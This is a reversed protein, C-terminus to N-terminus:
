DREKKIEDFEDLPKLSALSDLEELKKYEQYSQVEALSDKVKVSDSIEKLQLELKSKVNKLIEEHLSINASYYKLSAHFSASDTQHNEYIYSLYNITRDGNINKSNRAAKAIYSDALITAMKDKAILNEPKKIITNSNCATILVALSLFYFVKKM